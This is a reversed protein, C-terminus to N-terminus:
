FADRHNRRQQETITSFDLQLIANRFEDFETIIGFLRAFKHASITPAVVNRVQFRIGPAYGTIDEDTPSVLLTTAHSSPTGWFKRYKGRFFGYGDM